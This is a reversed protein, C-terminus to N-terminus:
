SAFSLQASVRVRTKARNKSFVNQLVFFAKNKSTIVNQKKKKDKLASRKTDGFRRIPEVDGGLPVCFMVASGALGPRLWALLSSLSVDGLAHLAM